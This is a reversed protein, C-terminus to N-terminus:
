LLAERARKVLARLDDRTAKEPDLRSLEVLVAHATAYRESARDYADPDAGFLPRQTM